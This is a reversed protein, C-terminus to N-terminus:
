YYDYGFVQCYQYQVEIDQVGVIIMVDVEIGKCWGIDYVVCGGDVQQEGKGGEDIEFGGGDIVFFGFIGFM